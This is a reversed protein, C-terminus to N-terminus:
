LIEGTFFATTSSTQTFCGTSSFVVSIGASMRLPFPTFAIGLTGPGSSLYYCAVPTVAGDSPPAALNYVLIYGSASSTVSLGFLTGSSAKFIHSSETAASNIPVNSSRFCATIGGPCGTITPYSPEVQQATQARSVGCLAFFSLIIFLVNKMLNSWKSKM